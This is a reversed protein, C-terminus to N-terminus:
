IGIVCANKVTAILNMKKLFYIMSTSGLKQGDMKKHTHKIGLRNATPFGKLLANASSKKTVQAM